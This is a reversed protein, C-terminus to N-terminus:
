VPIRMVDQYAEILKNRIQLAFQLSINAKEITVLTQAMDVPQGSALAVTAEQAQAQLDNVGTVARGLTTGFTDTDAGGAAAPARPMTPWSSPSFGTAGGVNLDNM